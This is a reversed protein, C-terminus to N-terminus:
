VAIRYIRDGPRAMQLQERAIKEKYFPKVSWDAVITRLQVVERELASCDAAEQENEKFLHQVAQLGHPGLFYLWSFIAVEGIFIGRAIARKVQKRNIM